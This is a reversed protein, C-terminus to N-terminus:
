RIDPGGTRYIIERAWMGWAEARMQEPLEMAVWFEVKGKYMFGELSRARDAFSGTYGEEQLRDIETQM